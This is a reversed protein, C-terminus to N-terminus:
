PTSGSATGRAKLEVSLSPKIHDWGALDDNVKDTKLVEVVVSESGVHIVPFKIRRGMRNIKTFMMYLVGNETKQKFHHGHGNFVANVGYKEYLPKWDDPPTAIWERQAHLIVFRWKARTGALVEQLFATQPGWMRESLHPHCCMHIMLADGYEYAYWWGRYDADGNDPPVFLDLYPRPNLAKEYTECNGLTPM